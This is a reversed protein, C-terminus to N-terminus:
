NEGYTTRYTTGFSQLRAIRDDKAPHNSALSSFLGKVPADNMYLRVDVPITPDM